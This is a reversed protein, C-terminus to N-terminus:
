AEPEVKDSENDDDDDQSAAEFEPLLEQSLALFHEHQQREAVSLDTRSLMGQAVSSAYKCVDAAKAAMTPDMGGDAAIEEDIRGHLDAELYQVYQSLNSVDRALEMMFSMQTGTLESGLFLIREIVDKQPSETTLPTALFRHIRRREAEIETPRGIVQPKADEYDKVIKEEDDLANQIITEPTAATM